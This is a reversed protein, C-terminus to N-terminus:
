IEEETKENGTEALSDSLGSAQMEFIKRYTGEREMLEKHSGIDEITNNKLVLIKDAQM